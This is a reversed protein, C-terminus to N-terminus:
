PTVKRVACVGIRGDAFTPIGLSRAAEWIDRGYVGWREVRRALLFREIEDLWHQLSARPTRTIRLRGTALGHRFFLKTGATNDPQRM